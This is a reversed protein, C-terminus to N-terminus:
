IFERTLDPSGVNNNDRQRAFPTVINVDLILGRAPGGFFQAHAAVVHRM